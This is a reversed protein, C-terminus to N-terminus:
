SPITMNVILGPNNNALTITGRHLNVVAKVLSLGLGSGTTNRSKDARYFRDFLKDHEATDVGKGQDSVVLSLNNNVKSVTLNVYGGHPSFKVANDLVNAIAQFLLDRDGFLIIETDTDIELTLSVGQDEAVPEYLEVVDRCINNVNINAFSQRSVGREVRAIRLLASFTALLHDAEYLLQKTEEASLGSKVGGELQNRLRTLPTRLDHAINDGAHRLNQMLEDIQGFMANLVQSLNSLDDWDSDITIRRSLDGTHMINRATEAINNTRSVVFVSILFSILVVIAMLAIILISVLKLNDYIALIAGIDRAILLRTNDSFTHIKMAFHHVGDPQEQTFRLLGERMIEVQAPLKDLNGALKNGNDNYYYYRQSPSQKIEADILTIIEATTKNKAQFTISSIEQDIAAETERVLNDDSFHYLTYGLLAASLGLASLFLVAMKFSSSQTYRRKMNASLSM